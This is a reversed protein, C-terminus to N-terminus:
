CGSRGSGPRPLLQYSRIWGPAHATLSSLIIVLIFLEARWDPSLTAIGFLILKIVISMGKLQFLWLVSSWLYLLSLLIGTSLTLYWFPLWQSEELTFLFGGAIGAVGVLHLSRLIINLWREGPFDRPKEPALLRVIRAGLGEESPESDTLDANHGNNSM